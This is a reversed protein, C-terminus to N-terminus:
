AKEYGKTRSEVYTKREQRKMCELVDEKTIGICM